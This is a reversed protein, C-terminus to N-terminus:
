KNLILVTKSIKHNIEHEVHLLLMIFAKDRPSKKLFLNLEARFLVPFVKAELKESDKKM